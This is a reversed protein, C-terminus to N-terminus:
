TIIVIHIVYNNVLSWYDMLITLFWDLYHRLLIDSYIIQPRLNSVQPKLLHNLLTQFSVYSQLNFWRHFKSQTRDNIIYSDSQYQTNIDLKFITMTQGWYISSIIVYSLKYKRKIIIISFHIFSNYCNNLLLCKTLFAKDICILFNNVFTWM